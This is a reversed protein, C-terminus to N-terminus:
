AMGSERIEKWRGISPLHGRLGVVQVLLAFDQQAM